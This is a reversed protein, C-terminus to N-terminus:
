KCKEYAETKSRYITGLTTGVASIAYPVSRVAWNSGNPIYDILEILRKLYRGIACFTSYKVELKLTAVIDALTPDFTFSRTWNPGNTTALTVEYVYTKSPLINM